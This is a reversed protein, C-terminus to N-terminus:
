AAPSGLRRGAQFAPRGLSVPAPKVVEPVQRVLSARELLVPLLNERPVNDVRMLELHGFSFPSFHLVDFMHSAIRALWSPVVIRLAPRGRLALLHEAMTRPSRGGLEVERWRMVSTMECLVAIAVALEQVHMVAIRGSSDEPVLHIPLAALRHLWRTAYGDGGDLLSPRVICYESGCAKIAREGALKSRIFRSRAGEHLGLASIHVLRIARRACAAALAGPAFHHVRAYTEAGRERLIGVANVVVDIERLLPHWADPTLLREVHAERRECAHLATPLRRRARWPHRSGIVVRHGRSALAEAAHRGIFGAGGLVLVKMTM